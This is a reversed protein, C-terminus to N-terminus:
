LILTYAPAPKCSLGVRRGALCGALRGGCTAKIPGVLDGRRGGACSQVNGGAPRLWCVDRPGELGRGRVLVEPAYAHRCNPCDSCWSRRLWEGLCRAHMWRMSGSCTLCPAVLRGSPGEEAERFCVWCEADAPAAEGWDGGDSLEEPEESVGDVGGDGFTRGCCACVAGDDEEGEEEGDEDEQDDYDEDYDDEDEDVLGPGSGFGVAAAGAAAAAALAAARAPAGRQEDEAAAAAAEEEEDDEEDTWEEESSGAARAHLVRCLSCDCESEVDEEDHSAAADSGSDSADAAQLLDFPNADAAAAVVAGGAGAQAAAAAASAIDEDDPLADESGSSAEDGDVSSDSDDTAILPPM